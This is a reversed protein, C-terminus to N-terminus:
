LVPIADMDFTVEQWVQAREALRDAIYERTTKAERYATASQKPKDLHELCVYGVRPAAAVADSGCGKYGCKHGSFADLLGVFCVSCQGRSLGYTWCQPTGCALCKSPRHARHEGQTVGYYDGCLLCHADTAIRRDKRTWTTFTM